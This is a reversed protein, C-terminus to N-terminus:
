VVGHKLKFFFAWLYICRQIDHAYYLQGEWGAGSNTLATTDTCSDGQQGPKLEGEPENIIEWGGLAPEGKLANVMPVLARDIYTQLKGTDVILGNLRCHCILM